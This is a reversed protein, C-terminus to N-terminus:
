VFPSKYRGGIDWLIVAAVPCAAFAVVQLWVALVGEVNLYALAYASEAGALLALVAAAIKLGM